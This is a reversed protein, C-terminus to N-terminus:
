VAAEAANQSTGVVTTMATEDVSTRAETAEKYKEDFIVGMMTLTVMLGFLHGGIWACVLVFLLFWLLGMTIYGPIDHDITPLTAPVQIIWWLVLNRSM